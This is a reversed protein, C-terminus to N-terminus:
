DIYQRPFTNVPAREMAPTASVFNYGMRPWVIRTWAGWMRWNKSTSPVRMSFRVPDWKCELWIDDVVFTLDSVDNRAWSAGNEESSSKLGVRPIGRDIKDCSLSYEVTTCGDCGFEVVLVSADDTMINTQARGSDATGSDLDFPNVEWNLARQYRGMIQGDRALELDYM